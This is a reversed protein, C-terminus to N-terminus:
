HYGVGSQYWTNTGTGSQVTQVELCDGASFSLTHGTDNCAASGNNITCTPPSGTTSGNKALTFAISTGTENTSMIAYLKDATGARSMLSCANAATTQIGMVGNAPLYQTGSPTTTSSVGATFLSDVITSCGTCTNVTLNGQYDLKAVSSGGNVHFDAFNGTFGSPANVGFETGATSWTSVAAGPNLLLSPFNTTATGGTYPAAATYINAVSAAPSVGTVTLYKGAYTLTNSTTVGNDLQPSSNAVLNTGNGQLIIGSSVTGNTAIASQGNIQVVGSGKPAVNLNINSDSGSGTIAVTAPNAAAANTITVSDVASATTSSILFPNGNTDVIQSFMAFCPVSGLASSLGCGFANNNGVGFAADSQVSTNPDTPPTFTIGSIEKVGILTGGTATLTVGNTTGVQLVGNAESENSSGLTSPTSWTALFGQNGGGGAGGGSVGWSGNQCTYPIGTGVVIQMPATAPCSGTPASSVYQVGFNGVIVQGGGQGFLPLSLLLMTIRVYHKM